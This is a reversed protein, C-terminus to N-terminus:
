GPLPGPPLHVLGSVLELMVTRFRERVVTPQESRAMGLVGAAVAGYLVHALMDRDEVQLLGAEAARDLQSRILGIEHREGCEWWEEFGLATPGEVWCLRQYAPDAVVDLFTDFAAVVGSWADPALDAAQNVTAM